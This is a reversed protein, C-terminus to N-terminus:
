ASQFIFSLLAEKNFLWYKGHQGCVGKPYFGKKANKQITRIDSHLLEAAEKSTIIEM